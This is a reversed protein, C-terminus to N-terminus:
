DTTFPPVGTLSSTFDAPRTSPVEITNGTQQFSGKFISTLVASMVLSTGISLFFMGIASWFIFKGGRDWSEQTKSFAAPSPWEQRVYAIRRAKCSLHYMVVFMGVISGLAVAVVVPFILASAPGLGGVTAWIIAFFVAWLLPQIFEFLNFKMAYAYVYPNMFYGWSFSQLYGQDVETTNNSQSFDRRETLIGGEGSADGLAAFDVSRMAEEIVDAGWGHASLESTIEGPKKGLFAQKKVYELLDKPVM